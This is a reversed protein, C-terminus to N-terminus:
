RWRSSRGQRISCHRCGRTIGNADLAFSDGTALFNRNLDVNSRNVRHRRAMGWPNIAHVLLLGTRRPDLRPLFEAAFWQLFAAGLYGEIGHEGTTILLRQVSSEVADATIAAITHDDGDPAHSILRAGPWRRRVRDILARFQERSDHYSPPYM